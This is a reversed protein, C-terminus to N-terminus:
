RFSARGYRMLSSGGGGLPDDLGWSGTTVMARVPWYSAGKASNTSGELGKTLEAQIFWLFRASAARNKHIDRSFSSKSANCTTQNLGAPSM